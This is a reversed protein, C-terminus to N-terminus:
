DCILINIYSSILTLCQGQKLVGFDFLKHVCLDSDKKRERERKKVRMEYEHVIKDNIMVM